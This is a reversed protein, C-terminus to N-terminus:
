KTIEYGWIIFNNILYFFLPTNCFFNPKAIHHCFTNIIIGNYMPKLIPFYLNAFMYDFLHTVYGLIYALKPNLYCM